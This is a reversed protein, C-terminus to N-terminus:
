VEYNKMVEAFRELESDSESHMIIEIPKSLDLSFLGMLSKADIVYRGSVVDVDSEFKLIENSFNKIKNISNLNVIFKKM